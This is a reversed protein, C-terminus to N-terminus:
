QSILEVLEPSRYMFNNTSITLNKKKSEDYDYYIRGDKKGTTTIKNKESVLKSLNSNYELAPKVQKEGAPHEVIERKNDKKWKREELQFPVKENEAGLSQKNKQYDLERKMNEYKSILDSNKHTLISKPTEQDVKMTSNILLNNM